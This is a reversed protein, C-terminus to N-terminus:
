YIKIENKSEMKLLEEMWSKHFYFMGKSQEFLYQEIRANDSLNGSGEVIFYRNDKTKVGMIKTHNWCYILKIKENKKAFENLIQAVKEPKKKQNFFSSLVITIREIDGQKFLEKIGKVSNVDISYTSLILEKINIKESIYLLIAFTNFSKQTVIRIQESKEPLKGLLEKINSVRNHQTELFRRYIKRDKLLKKSENELKGKKEFFGKEEFFNM